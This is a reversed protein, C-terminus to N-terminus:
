RCRHGFGGSGPFTVYMGGLNDEAHVSMVARM